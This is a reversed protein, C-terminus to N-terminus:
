DKTNMAELAAFEMTRIDAELEDYDDPELRMRDMKHFLTNYDLGTPGLTGGRWQTRIESFLFYARQNEPWVEVGEGAYDELTLGLHEMKAIDAKSPPATFM